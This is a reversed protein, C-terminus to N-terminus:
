EGIHLLSSRSPDSVTPCSCPGGVAGSAVCTQLQTNALVTNSLCAAPLSCLCILLLWHRLFGSDKHAYVSVAVSSAHAFPGTRMLRGPIQLGVVFVQAEACFLKLLSAPKWSCITRSDLAISGTQRLPCAMASNEGNGWTMRTPESDSRGSAACTLQRNPPMMHAECHLRQCDASQRAKIHEGISCKRCCHLLPTRMLLGQSVVLGGAHSVRRTNQCSEGSELAKKVASLPRYSLSSAAAQFLIADGKHDMILHHHHQERCM